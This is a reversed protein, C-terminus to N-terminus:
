DHKILKLKEAGIAPKRAKSPISRMLPRVVITAEPLVSTQDRSTLVFTGRYNERM